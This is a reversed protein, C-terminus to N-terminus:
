PKYFKVLSFTDLGDYAVFQVIGTDPVLFFEYLRIGEPINVAGPTNSWLSYNRVIPSPSLGPATRFSSDGRMAMFRYGCINAVTHEFGLGNPGISGDCSAGQLLYVANVKFQSEEMELCQDLNDKHLSLTYDSIWVSDRKTSDRNLYIWYAGPKYNGFYKKIIPAQEVRTLNQCRHCSTFAFALSVAIIFRKM